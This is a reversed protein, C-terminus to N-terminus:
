ESCDVCGCNAADKSQKEMGQMDAGTEQLIDLHQADINRVITASKVWLRGNTEALNRAL